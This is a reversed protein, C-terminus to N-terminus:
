ARVPVIYTDYMDLGQYTSKIWEDCAYYYSNECPTNMEDTYRFRLGDPIKSEDVGKPNHYPRLTYIEETM